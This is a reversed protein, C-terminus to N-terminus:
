AFALTGTMVATSRADVAQFRHLSQANWLDVGVTDGPFVPASLRATLATLGTPDADVARGAALVVCGLTCLGHLIPRPFGVAAAAAPDIHVPHLDGTLRYLAAQNETSAFTTHLDPPADAVADPRAGREGGFGGGGPVFITYTAEFSEASVAIDVLAASGKDWVATVTARMELTGSAPLRDRVTLTQGVHLTTAVDYAGLDGTAWVAWLGLPLAFTPLVALDKEYVLSQEEPRAGVALAYLIADREDYRAVRTGLDRDVLDQIRLNEV